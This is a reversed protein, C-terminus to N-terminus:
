EWEGMGGLESARAGRGTRVGGHWPQSFGSSGQLAALAEGPEREGDDRM